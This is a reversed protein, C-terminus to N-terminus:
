KAQVRDQGAEENRTGKGLVALERPEATDIMGGGGMLV